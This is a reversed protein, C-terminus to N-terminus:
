NTTFLVSTFRLSHALSEINTTGNEYARVLLDSELALDEFNNQAYQRAKTELQSDTKALIGKTHNTVYSNNNDIIVNFIEARPMHIRVTYDDIFEFDNPTIKSLDIGAVVEGYAVFTLEEGMAGWLRKNDKTANYIRNINLSATELRNLKQIEQVLVTTDPKIEIPTSQTIQSITENISNSATKKTTVIITIVVTVAIIASVIIINAMINSFKKKM